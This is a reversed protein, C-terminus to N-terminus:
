RLEIGGAERNLRRLQEGLRAINAETAQIALRRPAPLAARADVQLQARAQRWREGLRRAQSQLADREAAQPLGYGGSPLLRAPRSLADASHLAERVTDLTGAPMASRSSSFLLRKLEDRARQEQRRLSAEELLLLAASSRIDARGIWRGREVPSADLWDVVHRGPIGLGMRAIDLMAQYHADLSDFRYGNRLADAHDALVSGDAIGARQLRQLLGTPTISRLGADALRPVADHLLRFTEVACNGTLFYYRGDYSWHVQAARELVAEIEEPNLALPVSRLARLEVRTYEDIVQHLPLVFLRSPYAGTLGRWSSVQVDDVFARFSLVQHHALDLRCDPGPPRGPACIVLRLMGHGWRSMPHRDPEALLYDIAYVRRADLQLLPTAQPDAGAQVFVQGPACTAAPPTTGSLAAFHRALAPRRCGYDADLLFHELNVAFFESPRALEYMDPSRDTFANSTVRGAGPLPRVQWGALDLLRPDRSPARATARDYLHALEHILAAMAPRPTDMGQATALLDRRLLLRHGLARGHVAPPLDDRWELTVPHMLTANWSAPLRSNVTAVVAEATRVEDPTLSATRTILEVASATGFAGVGLVM